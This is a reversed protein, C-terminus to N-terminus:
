RIPIALYTGNCDEIVVITFGNSRLPLTIEYGVVSSDASICLMQLTYDDNSLDSSFAVINSGKTLAVTNNRYDFIQALRAKEDATVFKRNASEALQDITDDNFNYQSDILDAFEQQTPVDGTEFFSKLITRTRQTM